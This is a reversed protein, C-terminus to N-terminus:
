PETVRALFYVAGTEAHRVVVLFPRDVDFRIPGGGVMAVTRMLVATAAAGELGDEDVRLVAKHAIEEIWVPERAPTMGTFDAAGRDFAATVGLRRLVPKLGPLSTELRFRPLALQVKAPRAAAYLRGLQDTGLGREADALDGDPLVVDAVVGGHTGLTVLRWGGAAAYPLHDQQVHMTPVDRTGSPAHFSAPRTAAEPFPHLWAAKLYLANVVLAVIDAHVAGPALLEKVLERTTKAVEANVARRAGEPDRAFDANHLAGGPWSLVQQRYPEEFPRGERTWLSNAVALEADELEAARALTTALAALDAGPAIVGALEDRTTGRAGAAALGLASAVSYPSWVLDGAAPLERHLALVPALRGADM